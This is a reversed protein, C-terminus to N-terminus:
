KRKILQIIMSKETKSLGIFYTPIAITLFSITAITTFRILGEALFLKLSYQAFVSFFTIISAPIVFSTFYKTLKIQSITKHLIILRIAHAISFIILIIIFSSQPPYGLKFVFYTIPMCLLTFSEVPVFYKRVNGTAQMIITIPNHMNVLIACVVSYQSFIVMYDSIDKLWVKLIFDMELILPVSIVLTAYYLIKNSLYFIKIVKEDDKAAFCKVIPPKIATIFSQSFQGIASNIQMGVARAANAIPGFFVNILISIGQNLGVGALTGYMTWGSFSVMEKFLKHNYLRFNLICIDSYKKIGIIIYAFLGLLWIITLSAGYSILHDIAVYPLLIAFLLKLLTEIISIISWVNMDEKAITLSSFPVQLITLMFSAISFHYTMITADMRDSPITLQTKIIWLGLTESFFVAILALCIYCIMSVNFVEKLRDPRSEGISFSYFRQTASSLVNTLFSLSSVVGAVVNYIGYDEVGLVDLVVRVTYLNILMVLIMRVYLLFTNKAIRKNNVTYDSM